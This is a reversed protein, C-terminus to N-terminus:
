KTKSVIKKKDRATWRRWSDERPEEETEEDTEEETEEEHLEM